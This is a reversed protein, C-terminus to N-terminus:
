LPVSVAGDLHSDDIEGRHDAGTPWVRSPLANDEPARRHEEAADKFEQDGDDESERDQLYRQAQYVDRFGIAFGPLSAVVGCISAESLYMDRQLQAHFLVTALALGIGIEAVIFRLHFWARSCLSQDIQRFLDSQAVRKHVAISVLWILALTAGIVAYFDASKRGARGYTKPNHEAIYPTNAANETAADAFRRQINALAGRLRAPPEDASAFELALVASIDRALRRDRLAPLHEVLYDKAAHASRSFFLEDDGLAARVAAATASFASRSNPAALTDASAAAAGAVLAAHAASGFPLLAHLLVVCVLFAATRRNHPM